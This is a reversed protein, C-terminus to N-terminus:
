GGEKAWFGTNGICGLFNESLRNHGPVSNSKIKEELENEISSTCPYYGAYGYNYYPAAKAFAVCKSETIDYLEPNIINQKVKEKFEDVTYGLSAALSSNITTGKYGDFGSHDLAYQITSKAYLARCRILKAYLLVGSRAAEQSDTNIMMENQCTNCAGLLETESITLIKSDYGEPARNGVEGLLSSSSSGLYFPTQQLVLYSIFPYVPYYRSSGNQLRVMGNDRGVINDNCKVIYQPLSQGTSEVSFAKNLESTGNVHPSNQIWYDINTSDDNYEKGEYVIMTHFNSYNSYWDNTYGIIDGMKIDIPTSFSINQAVLESLTHPGAECGLASALKDGVGSLEIYAICITNGDSDKRDTRVFVHVGDGGSNSQVRVNYVVGDTMSYVPSHVPIQSGSGWDLDNFGHPKGSENADYTHPWESDSATGDTFAKALNGLPHYYYGCNATTTETITGNGSLSQKFTLWQSENNKGNKSGNRTYLPGTNWGVIGPCLKGTVDFHRIVHNIDINYKQMLYKVLETLLTICQRSYSWDSTNAYEVYGSNNDSCVEIGVSNKNTCKGYHAGGGYSAYESNLSGGCHWTYRNKPDPNYSYVGGQDITYDASVDTNGNIYISDIVNKASGPTSSTGATYHVVIYEIKRDKLYSTHNSNTYQIINM